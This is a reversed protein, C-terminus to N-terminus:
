PHLGTLLIMSVFVLAAVAFSFYATKVVVDSLAYNKTVVVEREIADLIRV